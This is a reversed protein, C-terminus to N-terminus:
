NQSQCTQTSTLLAFSLCVRQCLWSPLTHRNQPNLKIWHHSWVSLEACQYNFVQKSLVNMNPVTKTSRACIGPCPRFSPVGILTSCQCTGWFSCKGLEAGYIVTAAETPIWLPSHSVILQGSHRRVHEWLASVCAELTLEADLSCPCFIGEVSHKNSRKHDWSEHACKIVAQESGTRDWHAPLFCLLAVVYIHENNMILEVIIGFHM